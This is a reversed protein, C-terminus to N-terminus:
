NEETSGAGARAADTQHKKVRPTDMQAYFHRDGAVPGVAQTLAMRYRHPATINAVLAYEVQAVTEDKEWRRWNYTKLDAPVADSITTLRRM